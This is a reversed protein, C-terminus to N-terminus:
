ISLEVRCRAASNQDRAVGVIEDAGPRNKTSAVVRLRGVDDTVRTRDAFKVGGDWMRVRWGRGADTSRLRFTVEIRPGLQTASRRCTFTGATGPPAGAPAAALVLGCAVALVAIRRSV